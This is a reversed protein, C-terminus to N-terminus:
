LVRGLGMILWVSRTPKAQIVCSLCESGIPKTTMVDPTDIQSFVPVVQLSPSASSFNGFLQARPVNQKAGAKTMALAFDTSFIPIPLMGVSVLGTPKLHGLCLRVSPNQPQKAPCPRM